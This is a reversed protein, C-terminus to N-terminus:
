YRLVYYDELLKIGAPRYGAFLASAYFGAGHLRDDQTSDKCWPPLVLAPCM